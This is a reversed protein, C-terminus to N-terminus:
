PLTKCDVSSHGFYILSSAKIYRLSLNYYRLPIVVLFAQNHKQGKIQVPCPHGVQQRTLGSWGGDDPLEAMDLDLQLQQNHTPDGAKHRPLALPPIEMSALLQVEAAIPAPWFESAGTL